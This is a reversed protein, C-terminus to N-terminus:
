LEPIYIREYDMDAMGMKEYFNERCCIGDRELIEYIDIIEISSPYKRSENRLESLHDFSSLIVAEVEFDVNASQIFKETDLITKGFEACLCKDDNDIFYGVKRKAKQSLLNYLKSSHMGGFRIAVSNDRFKEFVSELMAMIVKSRKSYVELLQYLYQTYIFKNDMKLQMPYDLFLTKLGNVDVHNQIQPYLQPEFGGFPGRSISWEIGPSFKACIVDQTIVGRYGFRNLTLTMKNRFIKEIEVKSYWDLDEIPVFQRKVEEELVSNEEIVSKLVYHFDAISFLSKIKKPRIMSGYIDFHIHFRTKFDDQGHDSMFFRVSSPGLFENYFQLQRDLEEKGDIIRQRVNDIDAMSASLYPSHGEILAHVIIMQPSQNNDQLLCELGEWLVYSSPYFLGPKNEIEYDEILDTWYGSIIKIEYGCKELYQITKSNKRDIKNIKYARDTVQMKQCFMNKLTPTTHPTVTFAQDFSISKEKIKSLYNMEDSQEYSIADMWFLIIDKKDRVNISKRVRELLTNIEEWAKEIQLECELNKLCYICEKALLFNKMYLAIFLMKEAYLLKYQNTTAGYYKKNLLYYEVEPKEMWGPRKAFDYTMYSNESFLHYYEDECILGQLQFLDYIDKYAIKNTELYQIVGQRDHFSLFYIIGSKNLIIEKDNEWVVEEVLVSKPIFRKTYDIDDQKTALLIIGDEFNLTKLFETKLIKEAGIKKRFRPYYKDINYKTIITNLQDTIKM